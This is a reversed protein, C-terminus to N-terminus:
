AASVLVVNTPAAPLIVAEISNSLLSEVGGLSSKVAYFSTGLSANADVFSDTTILAANVKVTEAGAASGKYVNYGDVADTSATWSISVSHAM